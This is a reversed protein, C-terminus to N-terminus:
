GPFGGQPSWRAVLVVWLLAVDIAVGLVLWPHFFAVLLVLSAVSGVVVGPVFLNSGLIGVAGGAAVVFGVLTLGILAVGLLRGADGELGLPSLAWSHGLDFPWAPGGATAPPRPSVFSAHILGHAVLFLGLLWSM